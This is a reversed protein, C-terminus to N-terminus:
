FDPVSVRDPFARGCHGPMRRAHQLTAQITAQNRCRCPTTFSAVPQYTAPLLEHVPPIFGGSWNSLSRGSKRRRDTATPKRACALNASSPASFRRLSPPPKSLLARSTGRSPHTGALGPRILRDMKPRDPHDKPLFRKKMPALRTIPAPNATGVLVDAPLASTGTPM